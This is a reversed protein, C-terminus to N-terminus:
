AMLTLGAWVDLLCLAAPMVALARKGLTVAHLADFIQLAGDGLLTWALAERRQTLRLAVMALGLLITRSAVMLLLSRELETADARRLKRLLWPVMGATLMLGRLVAFGLAIHASVTM